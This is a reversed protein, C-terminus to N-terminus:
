PWEEEREMRKLELAVVVLNILGTLWGCAKHWQLIEILCNAKRCRTEYKPPLRRSHAIILPFQSRSHYRINCISYTFNGHALPIRFIHQM